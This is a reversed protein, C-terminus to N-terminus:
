EQMFSHAAIARYFREACGPQYRDHLEIIIQDVKNIWEDFNNEFVRYEAGEIDLKLIDIHDIGHMQLIMPITIGKVIQRAANRAPTLDTM